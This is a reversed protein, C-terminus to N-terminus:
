KDFHGTIVYSLPNIDFTIDIREIYSLYSTLYIPRVKFVINKEETRLQIGKVKLSGEHSESQIMIAIVPHHSHLASLSELIDACISEM